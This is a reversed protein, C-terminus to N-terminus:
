RHCTDQIRIGILFSPDKMGSAVCYRVEGLILLNYVRVQIVVGPQLFDSFGIKVGNQSIDVVRARFQETRLPSLIRLCATDDTSIRAEGLREAARHLQEVTTVPARDASM